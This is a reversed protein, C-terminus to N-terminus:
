TVAHATVDEDHLFYPEGDPLTFAHLKPRSSTKESEAVGLVMGVGDRFAQATSELWARKNASPATLKLIVTEARHMFM